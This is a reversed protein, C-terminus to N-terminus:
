ASAPAVAAEIRAAEDVAEALSMDRLVASPEENYRDSHVRAVLEVAKKETPTCAMSLRETRREAAQEPRM